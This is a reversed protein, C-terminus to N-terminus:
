KGNTLSWSGGLALLGFRESVQDSQVVLPFAQIHHDYPHALAEDYIAASILYRGTLLPLSPITYDVFGPGDIREIVFQDFLTNPGCLHVGSDHHIAIGFAPREVPEHANYRLRLTLQAGTQVVTQSRGQADLLDVATIEAERSGIRSASNNNPAAYEDAV